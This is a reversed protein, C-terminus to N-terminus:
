VGNQKRRETRLVKQVTGPTIGLDEAIAGNTEKPARDLIDQRQQPTLGLGKPM